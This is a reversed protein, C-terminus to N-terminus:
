GWIRNIIELCIPIGVIINFPFTLASVMSIYLSPNAKPVTMGIAALVALHSAGACLVAFLLANAQSM